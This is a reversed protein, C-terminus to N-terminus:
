SQDIYFTERDATNAGKSANRECAKDKEFTRGCGAIAANSLAASAAVEKSRPFELALECLRLEAANSAIYIKRESHLMAPIKKTM